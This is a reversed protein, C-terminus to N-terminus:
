SATSPWSRPSGGATRDAQRRAARGSPGPVYQDHCLPETQSPTVRKLLKVADATAADRATMQRLAATPPTHARDGCRAAVGWRVSARRVSLYLHRDALGVWNDEDVPQPDVGRRPTRPFLEEAIGAIRRQRGSPRAVAVGDLERPGIRVSDAVLADVVDGIVEGGDDITEWGGRDHDPVGEAAHDGLFQEALAPAGGGGRDVGRLDLADPGCPQRGQAGGERHELVGGVFVAGDRERRFLEAEAEAVRHALLLGVLEVVLPGDGRGALGEELRREGVDRGVRGVFDVRAVRVSPREQEDHTALVLRRGLRDGLRGELLVEVRRG